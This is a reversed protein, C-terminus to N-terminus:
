KRWIINFKIKKEAPRAPQQTLRVAQQGIEPLHQDISPFGLLQSLLQNGQGIVVVKPGAVQRAGAASIDSETLIVQLNPTTALLETTLQQSDAFSRCHYRVLDPSLPQGFVQRYAALTEATTVSEKAPRIFLCGIRDLHRHRLTQFLETLAAQRDIHVSRVTPDSITECFVIPHKKGYPTIEQYPLTHSTVILSDILRHELEDLCRREKAPSYATPLITVEQDITAAAMTIANVLGQFYPHDLFPVMVGIRNSSNTSLIRAIGNCHYDLDRMAAAIKEGLAQSVYGHKTIYKSVTSPACGVRKAIDYITTM